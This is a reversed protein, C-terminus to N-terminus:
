KLNFKEPKNFNSFGTKYDNAPSFLRKITNKLSELQQVNPLNASGRASNVYFLWDQESSAVVKDNVRGKRWNARDLMYTVYATLAKIYYVDDPIRPYGDEDVPIGNYVICLKENTNDDLGINSIIYSDNIYFTYLCESGICRSRFLM